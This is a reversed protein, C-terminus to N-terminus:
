SSREKSFVLFGDDERDFSMGVYRAIRISALNEKKVKARVSGNLKELLKSVMQKGINRGRAEPAVTWSLEYFCGDFDARVTGVPNGDIEALYIQRNPNKLSSSFWRSHEDVTIKGSNRSFSRTKPDNRWKLLLAADEARAL